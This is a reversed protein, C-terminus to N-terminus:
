GEIVASDGGAMVTDPAIVDDEEGTKPKKSPKGAKSRGHGLWGPKLTVPQLFGDIHVGGVTREENDSDNTRPDYGHVRKCHEVVRYPLAFDKEHGFCDAHPCRLTGIQFYPRKSTPRGTIPFAALAPVMTPTFLVPEAVHKKVLGEDFAIFSMDERFLGACRQATRALARENWGKVAALGLIESWDMLGARGSQDRTSSTSNESTTSASRRRKRKQDHSSPDESGSTSSSAIDSDLITKEDNSPKRGKKPVRSARVSSARSASLKRSGISNSRAGTTSQPRSDVSEAGSTFESLSSGDSYGSRGFHNLRTRRVALALDDLKVLMSHITPQLVRQARADDAMFTPRTFTDMQAKRGRTKGYTRGDDGEGEDESDGASRLGDNMEIDTRSASRRAKISIVSKSRSRSRSLTTRDRGRDVEDEAERSDWSEKALRLFMALLEERLTEGAAHKSPGGIMWQNPHGGVLRREPQSNFDSLRAPPLPWATWHKSPVLETQTLGSEETYQLETGSKLWTDRSQWGKSGVIDAASRRARRKLAHANYLHASLDSDQMKELSAAIQRDAATYGRWTQPQGTFRNPRAPQSEDLEADSDTSLDDDSESDLPQDLDQAPLASQSSPHEAASPSPLPNSHQSDSSESPSQPVPASGGFLSMKIRTSTLCPHHSDQRGQAPEATWQKSPISLRPSLKPPARPGRSPVHHRARLEGLIMDLVEVLDYEVAKDRMQRSLWKYDELDAVKEGPRTVAFARAKMRWLEPLSAVFVDGFAIAEYMFGPMVEGGLEILDISVAIGTGAGAPASYQIFPAGDIFAGHADASGVIDLDEARRTSGHYLMAGSGVLVFQRRLSQPVLLSAAIFAEQLAALLADSIRTCSIGPLTSAKNCEVLEFQQKRSCMQCVHKGMGLGYISVENFQWDHRLM